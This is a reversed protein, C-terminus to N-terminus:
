DGLNCSLGSKYLVCTNCYDIDCQNASHITQHACSETFWNNAVVGNPNHQCYNIAAICASNCSGNTSWQICGCFGAAARPTTLALFLFCLGCFVVLRVLLQKV